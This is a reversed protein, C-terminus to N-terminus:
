AHHSGLYGFHRGKEYNGGTVAATDLSKHRAAPQMPVSGCLKPLVRLTNALTANAIQGPSESRLACLELFVDMLWTPQNIQGKYTQPAMNPADTELVVADLPLQCALKRLRKSGPWTLSGSFSICFGLRIFELAMERSGSFAHMIGGVHQIAEEKMIQLTMQFKSRCHIIVPLGLRAAIQLQSRFVTVQVDPPPDFDPDIGIEGIAVCHKALEELRSLCQSDAKLVHMPHIGLAAHLDPQQAALQLIRPWNDPHVGPVVFGGIGSKRACCLMQDLQTYLPECDLHCHTDILPTSLASTNINTDPM